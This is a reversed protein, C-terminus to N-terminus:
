EDILGLINAPDIIRAIDEMTPVKATSVEKLTEVTALDSPDIPQMNELAQDEAYASPIRDSCIDCYLDPNEWNPSVGM